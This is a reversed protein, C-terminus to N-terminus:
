NKDDVKPKSRRRKPSSPIIPTEGDVPSPTKQSSSARRKTTTKRPAAKTPASIDIEASGSAVLKSATARRRKPSPIEVIEQAPLEISELNGTSKSSGTSGRRGATVKTGRIVQPISLGFTAPALAHSVAPAISSPIQLGESENLYAVTRLVRSLGEPDRDEIQALSLVGSLLQRAMQRRVLQKKGRVRQKLRALRNKKFM